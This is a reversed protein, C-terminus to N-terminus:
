HSEEEEQNRIFQEEAEEGGASYFPLFSPKGRRRRRFGFLSRGSEDKIEATVATLLSRRRRRGLTQGADASRSLSIKGRELPRRVLSAESPM